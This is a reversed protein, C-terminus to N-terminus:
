TFEHALTDRIRLPQDDITYRRRLGNWMRPAAKAEEPLMQLDAGKAIILCAKLTRARPATRSEGQKSWAWSKNSDHTNLDIM